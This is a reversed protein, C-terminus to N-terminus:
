YYNYLCVILYLQRNVSIKAAVVSDASMLVYKRLLPPKMDIEFNSNQEM